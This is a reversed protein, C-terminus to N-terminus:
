DAPRRVLRHGRLEVGCRALEDKWGKELGIVEPREYLGARVEQATLRRYKPVAPDDPSVFEEKRHLLPRNAREEYSTHVADLTSMSVAYSWALRPHPDTDFDPYASWSVQRGSHNLKLVDWGDPRGAAVAGCHEYLRLVVPMHETARRHVYLATPTLKGVSNRMAGRVYSDDRLKLLLRDARACAERYSDFCARLDLQVSLPLESPKPRGVFASVGLFLLTDLIAKTRGREVREPAAGQIVLRRLEGQRVHRLLPLLHDPYEEIAPLRGRREFYDIVAALASAEDEGTLWVGQGAVRHALFRLRQRESKFAYVVGPAGAATRAGTVSEVLDRLERPRFLRQFTQRSTLTGDASPTGTLKHREWSLRTSVILVQDALAWARRLTDNRERPDEIVNLVYVLLVADHRTPVTDKAWHPDWGQVDFGMSQLREVDGGRGSGFDLVSMETQIVGDLLAQKTPMSLGQRVLATRHRLVPQGSVRRSTSSRHRVLSM